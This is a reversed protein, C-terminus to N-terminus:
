VWLSILLFHILNIYLIIVGLKNEIKQASSPILGYRQSKSYKFQFMELDM